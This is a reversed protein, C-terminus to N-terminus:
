FIPQSSEGKDQDQVYKAIHGVGLVKHMVSMGRPSPPLPSVVDLISLNTDSELMGFLSGDLTLCVVLYVSPPHKKQGINSPFNHLINPM